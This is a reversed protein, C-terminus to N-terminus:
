NPTWTIASPAEEIASLGLRLDGDANTLGAFDGVRLDAEHGDGYVFDIRGSTHLVVQMVVPLPVTGPPDFFGVFTEGRFEITFTDADRLTCVEDMVLDRFLPAVADGQAAGLFTSDSYGAEFTLWGNTSVTFQGVSEGFFTFPFPTGATLDFEDSLADDGTLSSEGAGGMDPCVSVLDIDAPASSYPPPTVSLTLDYTGGVEAEDNVIFAVRGATPVLTTLTEDEGEIGDDAIDVQDADVDLTAILSDMTAAANSLAVTLSSFPEASAVYRVVDDAPASDGVRDVDTGPMITGVDIFTVDNVVFDFTEDMDHGADDEVTILFNAGEGFYLREFADEGAIGADVSALSGEIVGFEGRPYFLVFTDTLNMPNEIGFSSWDATSLDVSYFARDLESLDGAAATGVTLDTPTINTLTSTIDYTEGAEFDGSSDAIALYHIGTGAIQIFEDVETCDTCAVDVFNFDADFLRVFGLTTTSTFELRVVDGETANFILFSLLEDDHPVAVTSGDTPLVQAGVDNLDFSFDTEDFGINLVQDVVFLVDAADPLANVVGTGIGTTDSQTNTDFDGNVTVVFSGIVSDSEAPEGEEDLESLEAIILQGETSTLGYFTPDGFTGTVPTGPTIDTPTPLDLTELQAFYCEGPGGAAEGTLLGRADTAAIFYDGPGPLFVQGEVGDGSLNVVLRTWGQDVLDGDVGLLQVAASLGGIGDIRVQLLTPEDVTLQFFDFDGDTVGNDDFDMPEICGYFSGTGDAIDVVQAMAGDNFEPDNPEALELVDAMGELLTDPDVCTDSDVVYVLDGECIADPDPICTDTESDYITNRTCIAEDPVCTEGVLMTGDACTITTEPVCEGADNLITGAGCETTSVPDCTRTEMNFVTGEACVADTPVCNGDLEVTGPGCDNGDDGCGTALTTGMLALSLLLRFRNTNSM